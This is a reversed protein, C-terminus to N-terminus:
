NFSVSSQQSATNYSMGVKKAKKTICWENNGDPTTLCSEGVNPLSAQSFTSIQAKKSSVKQMPNKDLVMLRVTDSAMSPSAVLALTMVALAKMKFNKM